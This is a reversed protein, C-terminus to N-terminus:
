EIAAESSRDHGATLAMDDLLHRDEFSMGAERIEAVLELFEPTTRPDRDRAFPVPVDRVIRAGPGQDHHQSLVLIRTGLFVAEDLDHTIFLVANNEERHVTKLLVQLVERTQPDLGSFPEDMLLIRPSLILAAAIDVRQRMGGSIEYIMKHADEPRLRMKALYTRALDRYRAWAEKYERRRFVQMWLDLDRLVLGYAINDLVNLWPYLVNQQFVMAKKWSAHQSVEGDVSVTGGYDRPDTFGGIIHMLTSKGCGSPGVLCVFEGPHISLDVQGLVVKDGFSRHVSSLQLVPAPTDSM